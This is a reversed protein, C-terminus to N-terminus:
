GKTGTDAGQPHPIVHCLELKRIDEANRIFGYGLPLSIKRIRIDSLFYTMKRSAYLNKNPNMRNMNLITKLNAYRNM